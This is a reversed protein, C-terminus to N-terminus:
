ICASLLLRQRPDYISPGLGAKPEERMPSGEGVTTEKQGRGAGKLGGHQGTSATTTIQLTTAPVHEKCEM